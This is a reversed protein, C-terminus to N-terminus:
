KKSLLHKAYAAIALTEEPTIKVYSLSNFHEVESQVMSLIEESSM